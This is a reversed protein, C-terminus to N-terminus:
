ERAPGAPPLYSLTYSMRAALSREPNWGGGLAKFSAVAARSAELQAVAMADRQALLRGDADLVEILSVVGGEFAARAASQARTLAVEGTTLTRLQAERRLLSVLANEVDESAHLAALRYAALAEAQQGRSAKIAADIRGFDFLRWRLGLVAIAQNANGTFLASSGTTATGILGSLSFKPYYEAIAVGIRANAAALRREALVLDPRRRLLDAPGGIDAIAPAAPVPAVPTLLARHSGPQSGLAVDLANMAVELGAELVPVSAAIQSLAGEAQRLQLEAAVGADFQRQILGVLRETTAIQEQAIALRQQLGRVLLYTDAVQAAVSLRAVDAGAEAAQLEAMAAERARRRGGFLDLEWSAGLNLENYSGNRDFDPSSADLIQGLQSRLSQHFRVSQGSLEGAPLLAATAAGLMARSQSVKAVVQALDLNDALAKAVLSTLVPDDFRQWWRASTASADTDRASLAAQQNFHAPADLTPRQYDPGVACGAALAGLLTSAALSILRRM